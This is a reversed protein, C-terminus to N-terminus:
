PKSDTEIVPAADLGSIDVGVAKGDVDVDVLVCDTVEVTHDIKADSLTIYMAEVIPYYRIKNM